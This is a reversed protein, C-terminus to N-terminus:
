KRSIYSAKQYPFLSACLSLSLSLFSDIIFSFHIFNKSTFQLLGLSDDQNMRLTIKRAALHFPNFDAANSRDIQCIYPHIGIGGASRDCQIVNAFIPRANNFLRSLHDGRIPIKDSRLSHLILREARFYGESIILVATDHM